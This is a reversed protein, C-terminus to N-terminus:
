GGGDPIDEAAAPLVFVFLAFVLFLVGYLSKRRLMILIGGQLSFRSVETIIIFRFCSNTLVPFPAPTGRCRSINCNLRPQLGRGIKMKEESQPTVPLAKRDGKM